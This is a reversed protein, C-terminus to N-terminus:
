LGIEFGRKSSAATLDLVAFIFAAKILGKRCPDAAEQRCV